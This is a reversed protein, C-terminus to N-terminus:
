PTPAGARCWLEMSDAAPQGACARQATPRSLMNHGAMQLRQALEGAAFQLWRLGRCGLVAPCPTAARMSVPRAGCGGGHRAEAAATVLLSGLPCGRGQCSGKLASRRRLRAACHACALSGQSAHSQLRPPAAPRGAAPASWPPAPMGAAPPSKGRVACLANTPSARTGADPPRGYCPRGLRLYECLCPVCGAERRETAGPTRVAGARVSLNVHRPTRSPPPQAVPGQM